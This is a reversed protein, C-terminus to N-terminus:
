VGMDFADCFSWHCPSRSVSARTMNYASIYACPHGEGGLV